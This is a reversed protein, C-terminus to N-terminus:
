VIRDTINKLLKSINVKEGNSFIENDILIIPFKLEIKESLENLQIDNFWNESMFEIFQFEVKDNFNEKIKRRLLNGVDAWSQKGPQCKSEPLTIFRVIM